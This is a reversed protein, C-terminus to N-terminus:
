NWSNNANTAGAAFSAANFTGVGKNSYNGTMVAFLGASNKYIFYGDAADTHQRNNTITIVADSVNKDLNLVKASKVNNGNFIFTQLKNADGELYAFTSTSKVTSFNNEFILTRSLPNINTMTSMIATEGDIFNDSFKVNLVANFKFLRGSDGYSGDFVTNDLLFRNYRINADVNNFQLLAADTGAKTIPKVGNRCDIINDVINATGAGDENWLSCLQVPGAYSVARDIGGLHLITNGRMNMLYDLDANKAQGATTYVAAGVYDIINDTINHTIKKPSDKDLWVEFVHQMTNRIVNNNINVNPYEDIRFAEDRCTDFVCGTININNLTPRQQTQTEDNFSHPYCTVHNNSGGFNWRTIAICGTDKFTSNTVTVNQCASTFLEDQLSNKFVCNDIVVNKYLHLCVNNGYDKYSDHTANTPIKAVDKASNGDFTLGDIQIFDASIAAYSRSRNTLTYFGKVSTTTVANIDNANVLTAGNGHITYSVGNRLMLEKTLYSKSRFEVVNAIDLMRQLAATDDTTGDGYAGFVEPTVHEPIILVACLSSIATQIIDMGNATQGETIVYWAGGGDGSTRFGDTRVTMGAEITTDQNMSKVAASSSVAVDYIKAASKKISQALTTEATTARQTEASIAAANDASAKKAEAADAAAHMVGTKTETIRKDFGNVTQQLLEVQSNPDNWKVWHTDNDTEPNVGKAISIKNAIYSTGNVRVVDYLVYSTEADWEGVFHFTIRPGIARMGLPPAVPEAIDASSVTGIVKASGAEASFDKSEAM